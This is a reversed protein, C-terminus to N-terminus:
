AFILTKAPSQEKSLLVLLSQSFWGEGGVGGLKELKQPGGANRPEDDKEEM